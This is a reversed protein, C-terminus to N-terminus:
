AAEWDPAFSPDILRLGEDLAAICEMEEDELEFDFVDFNERRHEASSSRPIAAVNDQQLLWRLAVQAPTKGHQRGIERLTEDETVKGQAVPSYATLMLDHERAMELLEDQALFPHYEVQNCLIPARDLARQLLSPTFNSVGYHRIIGEAQLHELAVLPEDLPLEENPWHILMLDIWEGGLRENSQRATALCEPRDLNEWWVKSTLFVEDRPVGSERIGRGVEAENEYAQATDIHRYGIELADRVAEVCEDGQLQWTGLGLSPIKRGQVEVVDARRRETQM